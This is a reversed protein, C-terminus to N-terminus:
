LHGASLHLDFSQFLLLGPPEQWEQLMQKGLTNSEKPLPETAGLVNM